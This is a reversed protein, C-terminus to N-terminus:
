HVGFFRTIETIKKNINLIAERWVIFISIQRQFFAINFNFEELFAPVVIRCYSPLFWFTSFHRCKNIQKRQNLCFLM